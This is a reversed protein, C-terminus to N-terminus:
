YVPCTPPIEKHCQVLVEVRSLDEQFGSCVSGPAVELGRRGPEERGQLKMLMEKLAVNKQPLSTPTEALEPSAELPKQASERELRSPFSLQSM